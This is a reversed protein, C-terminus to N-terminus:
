GLMGEMNLCTEIQKITIVLNDFVSYNPVALLVDGKTNFPVTIEGQKQEDL